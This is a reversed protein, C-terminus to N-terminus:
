VLRIGSWSPVGGINKEMVSFQNKLAITVARRDPVTAIRQEHCFRVFREYLEDKSVAAGAEDTRHVKEAFFTKLGDGKARKKADGKGKKAAARKAATVPATRKEEALAPAPPAEPEPMEPGKRAAAKAQSVRAPAAPDDANIVPHLNPAPAKKVAQMRPLSGDRAIIVPPPAPVAAVQLPHYEIGTMGALARNCADSVDIGMAVAQRYIEPQLVVLTRHWAGESGKKGTM